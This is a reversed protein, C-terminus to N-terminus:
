VPARLAARAVRFNERWSRRVLYFADAAAGAEVRVADDGRWAPANLLGIPAGALLSQWEPSLAYWEGPRRARVGFWRRRGQLVDLLPGYFGFARRPASHMARPFRLPGIRVQRTAADLGVVAQRTVWPLMSAHRRTLLAVLAIGPLLVAAAAAAALRESATPTADPPGALSLMLGDSPPLETEVGLAVHRTRGGNVIADHVELGRGLYSGPLVVSDRVSTRAGVVVDRSLVTGPGINAGAAVLCGPGILTPGVITAAPHISAQPSAAGWAKAIWTTPLPADASGAIVARQAQLLGAADLAPGPSRGPDVLSRLGRRALEAHLTRRNCSRLPADLAAGPMSAWGTWTPIDEADLQLLLGDRQALRRLGEPEIWRDAHGILVRRSQALGATRLAVYPREPDKALHWRLRVGWREGEGLVERLLEPRDCAVVDLETLGLRALLEVLREVLPAHGLPLLAVPFDPPVPLDPAPRTTAFLVARLDGAAVDQAM